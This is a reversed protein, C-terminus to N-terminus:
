TKVARDNRSFVAAQYVFSEVNVDRAFEVRYLILLACDHGLRAKLIVLLCTGIVHLVIM